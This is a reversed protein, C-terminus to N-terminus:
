LLEKFFESTHIHQHVGIHGFGSKEVRHDNAVNWFISNEENKLNSHCDTVNVGDNSFQVGEIGEKVIWKNADNIVFNEYFNKVKPMNEFLYNTNIDWSSYKLKIKNTKCYEELMQLYSVAQWVTFEQTLVEEIYYPKKMMKPKSDLDIWSSLNTHCLLDMDKKEDGTKNIFHHTHMFGATTTAMFRFIDPLYLFVYEPHGIERFYAFVIQVVGAISKGPYGLNHVTLGTNKNLLYPWVYENPVGSGWTQSCGGAIITAPSDGFDEGRYGLKNFKYKQYDIIKKNAEPYHSERYDDWLQPNWKGFGHASNKLSPFLVTDSDQRSYIHTGKQVLAMYGHSEFQRLRNTNYSNIM